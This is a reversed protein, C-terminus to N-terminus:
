RNEPVALPLVAEIRAHFGRDIAIYRQRAQEGMRIKDAITMTIAQKIAAELAPRDVYHNTGLHRPEAHSWAVTIGCGGAIHENMPPADTVITVAGTSLAEVIYHGWGESRSPCLHVGCANQLRKLEGDDLYGSLLRMNSPVSRPANEAKQVLVLEPWEPHKEWLALLDETGKLTSAGALHFFRNWDKEVQADLRDDSTFGIYHSATGLGSFISEADRTNALVGDMRRLGPLLRRPFREQMPMLLNRPAASVWRRAVREMHIVIDAQRRRFLRDVLRRSRPTATTVRHGIAELAERFIASHRSLGYSNDKAIIIIESM